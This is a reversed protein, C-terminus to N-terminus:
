IKEIFYLSSIKEAIEGALDLPKKKFHGALVMAINLSVDGQEKFKPTEVTFAKGVDESIGLKALVQSKIESYINM